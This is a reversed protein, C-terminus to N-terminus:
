WMKTYRKEDSISYVNFNDDFSLTVHIKRECEKTYSTKNSNDDSVIIIKDPKKILLWELIM